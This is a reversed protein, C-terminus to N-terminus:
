YKECGRAGRQGFSMSMRGKGGVGAEADVEVGKVPMYRVDVGDSIELELWKGGKGARLSM